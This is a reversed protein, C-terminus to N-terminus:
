FRKKNEQKQIARNLKTLDEGFIYTLRLSVQNNFQQRVKYELYPKHTNVTVFRSIKDGQLETIPTVMYDGYRLTLWEHWGEPLKVKMGEFDGDVGRVFWENPLALTLSPSQALAFCEKTKKDCFRVVKEQYRDRLRCRQRESLVGLLFSSYLRLIGDEEPLPNRDTLAMYLTSNREQRKREEPDDPLNVLPIINIYVGQNIDYEAFAADILTTRSDRLRAFFRPYEPDTYYTQFFVSEGWLEQDLSALKVYDRYPMVVDISDDWPIIRKERVAGLLSGFGLFWTLRYEDCVSVLKELLGMQVEHIEKLDYNVNEM